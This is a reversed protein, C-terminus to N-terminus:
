SNRSWRIAAFDRVLTECHNKIVFEWTDNEKQKIQIYEIAGQLNSFIKYIEDTESSSPAGSELLVHGTAGDAMLVAFQGIKLHPFKRM